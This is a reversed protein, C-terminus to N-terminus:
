DQKEAKRKRTPRKRFDNTKDDWVIPSKTPLKWFKSAKSNRLISRAHSVGFLKKRKSNVEQLEVELIVNDIM